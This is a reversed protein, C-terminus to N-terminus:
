RNIFKVIHTQFLGEYMVRHMLHQSFNPSGFDINGKQSCVPGVLDHPLIGWGVRIGPSYSKSFTGAVIVTDGESDLTRASPVDSGSYRLERYAEDAIVHIRNRTSWEKAIEILRALRGSPM